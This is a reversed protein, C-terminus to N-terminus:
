DAIEIDFKKCLAEAAKEFSIGKMFLHPILMTEVEKEELEANTVGAKQLIGILGGAYANIDM